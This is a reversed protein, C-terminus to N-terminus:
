LSTDSNARFGVVKRGVVNAAAVGFFLASLGSVVQQGFDVWDAPGLHTSKLAILVVLSVGLTYYIVTRVLPPLAIIESM